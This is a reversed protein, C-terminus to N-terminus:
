TQAPILFELAHKQLGVKISVLSSPSVDDRDADTVWVKDDVHMQSGDWSIELARGRHITLSPPSEDGEIRASLYNLLGERGEDTVLVVDLHSDGPDAAPALHLNPGIFNMNMAEMM